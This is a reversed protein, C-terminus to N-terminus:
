KDRYFVKPFDAAHSGDARRYHAGLGRKFSFPVRNAKDQVLMEHLRQRYARVRKAHAKDGILNHQEHPDAELDYFEDLDWIGHYQIFKYREGRLAFTTPTHPFNWEWYYEYLLYKRWAAPDMKGAALKLFSRGDMFSPTGLGAAELITPGIDINAVLQRVVTGPRFLSPCHAILPVRMSAEYATRKDILGHEGWQFGNDGMYMVLTDRDWGREKLFAMLRGVSEDVALLAECYARYHEAIDTKRHYAYEIGHWSNRQDRVWKPKLKLDRPALRQSPPVPIPKGAYRGAHRKAPYFMGHVAKHSLYLFFPRKGDRQKLWRLAYDTLEDTIYGKQPVHKGDVNLMRPRGRRDKGPNYFGQGRFSVWHDFGPRPEDSHGGMHWKGIFATEYGHRQLYQPFFITGEPVRNNNDVVGHHHMYQGTLISARSPSCLSTTVMAQAFHVGGAALADLHPTEIFPHNLYGLLDYRHDDVLIFIVNRPRVGKLRPIPPLEDDAGHAWPVSPAALGMLTGAMAVVPFGCRWTGPRRM